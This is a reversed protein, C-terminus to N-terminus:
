AAQARAKALREACTALRALRAKHTRMEGAFRLVYERWGRWARALNAETFGLRAGTREQVDYARGPHDLAAALATRYEAARALAKPGDLMTVRPIPTTTDLTVVRGTGHNRGECPCDCSPGLAGTCRGDCACVTYFGVVLHTGKVRGMTEITGGCLACAAGAPLRENLAGVSLCDACRVYWRDIPPAFM